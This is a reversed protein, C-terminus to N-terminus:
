PVVIACVTSLNTGTVIVERPLEEGIIVALLIGVSKQALRLEFSQLHIDKHLFEHVVLLDILHEIIPTMLSVTERIRGVIGDVFATLKAQSDVEGLFLGVREELLHLLVALVIRVVDIGERHSKAFGDKHRGTDEVLKQKRLLIRPVLTKAM